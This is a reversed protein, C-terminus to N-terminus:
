YFTLMWFITVEFDWFLQLKRSRFRFNLLQFQTARSPVQSNAKSLSITNVWMASFYSQTIKVNWVLPGRPGKWKLVSMCHMRLVRNYLRQFSGYLKVSWHQERRKTLIVEVQSRIYERQSRSMASWFAINQIHKAGHCKTSDMQHKNGRSM